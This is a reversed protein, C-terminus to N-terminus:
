LMKLSEMGCRQRQEYDPATLTRGSYGEEVIEWEPARAALVRTWRNEHRQGSGPIYGWTNSDGICLIRM